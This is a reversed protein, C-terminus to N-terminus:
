KQNRGPVRREPTMAVRQGGRENRARGGISAIGPLRYRHIGLAKESRYIYTARMQLETEKQNKQM